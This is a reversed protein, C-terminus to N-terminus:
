PQILKRFLYGECIRYFTVMSKIDIWEEESHLNGVLPRSIIVPIGRASFYRADSGGHDRIEIVKSRTVERAVELYLPDPKLATPEAQVLPEIEIDPDLQRRVQKLMKAASFPEPFRIDLIGEAHDPIRNVVQNTTSMITPVCTPHWHDARDAQWKEFLHQIRIINETLQLLANKGEWPRSAHAFHGRCRIKLHLIGKEHTTIQDLSGGDPVFALGAQLGKRAILFGIGSAGGTEEDSTVVLGLSIGPYLRHFYRFIELLVALAGKMDGAGAGYIRGDKIKSRFAALSPYDIVDLHACLLVAPKKIGRPLAVLSPVGKDEHEELKLRKLGELHNKILQFGRTIEAPRSATTPILILDRTLAVLRERVIDNNLSTVIM